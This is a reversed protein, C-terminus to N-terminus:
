GFSESSAASQRVALRLANMFLVGITTISKGMKIAMATRVMSPYRARLFFLREFILAWMVLTLIAILFLVKGGLEMFDRVSELAPLYYYLAEM